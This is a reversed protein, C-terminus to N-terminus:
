NELDIQRIWAGRVTEPHSALRRALQALRSPATTKGPPDASLGGLGRLRSIVGASAQVPQGLRPVDLSALEAEVDRLPEPSAVLLFHERGGQSTVQWFVQRGDRTRPLRHREDATLPNAGDQGPLPHLLYAAGREDENVVYLHLARSAKFELFLRDGPAVRTGPLVPLEVGDANRYFAAAVTYPTAIPLADAAAPTTSAVSPPGAGARENREVSPPRVEAGPETSAAPLVASAASAGSQAGDRPPTARHISTGEIPVVSDPATPRLRTAVAFAVAAAAALGTTVVAWRLPATRSQPQSVSLSTGLGLAQALAAEMRGASEFRQAPDPATACEVVRLFAEPLDPRADRLLQREGRQHAETLEALSKGRVPFSGTVLHHLLIGLSYIDSRVSPAAGKFLEPAMYLPTGSLLRPDTAGGHAEKAASLDMLVIRGGEERMVNNAKVDGHVLGALHTAALARCTDLGILTAERAGFPGQEAILEALTRGKILEMWLGAQGQIREAGHVMIVNDHRVRALLRAEEVVGPGASAPSDSSFLKLAVERGLQMDWARYVTGSTGGGLRGRVRLNGWEEPPTHQPAREPPGPLTAAEGLIESTSSLSRHLTAVGAVTKLGRIGPHGAEGAAAEAATWDVPAGDAVASALSLLLAENDSM